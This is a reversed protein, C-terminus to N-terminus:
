AQLSRIRALAYHLKDAVYGPMDPNDHREDIYELAEVAILLAQAIDPFHEAVADRYRQENHGPYRSSIDYYGRNTALEQLEKVIGIIDRPENHM